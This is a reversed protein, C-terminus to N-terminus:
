LFLRQFDKLKLTQPRDFFWAKFPPVDGYLKLIPTGGGGIMWDSIPCRVDLYLNWKFRVSESLVKEVGHASTVREAQLFTKGDGREPRVM